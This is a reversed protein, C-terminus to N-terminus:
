LTWGESMKRFSFFVVQSQQVKPQEGVSSEETIAAAEDTSVNTIEYGALQITRPPQKGEGEEEEEEDRM